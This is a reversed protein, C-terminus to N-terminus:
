HAENFPCDAGLCEQNMDNFECVLDQIVPLDVDMHKKLFSVAERIALFSNRKCCRPGGHEAITMLAKATMLNSLRWTDTSLPTTDTILSLFIGTGVAAGCDGWFGCFGGLVRKSRKGAEQVKKLKADPDGRVNYYASLLVAPVIFHHEPGHMYVSKHRMLALAMAIPDKESTEICYRTIIDRSDSAHCEDCVFHGDACTVTSDFKGKCYFCEYRDTRSQYVLEKGCILCDSRHRDEKGMSSSM